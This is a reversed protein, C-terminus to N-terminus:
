PFPVRLPPFSLGIHIDLQGEHFEYAIISSTGLTVNSSSVGKWFNCLYKDLEGMKEPGRARKFSTEKMGKDVWYSPFGDLLTPDQDNCCVCVFKGKWDKYSQQFISLISRGAVGNLNVWLHDGPNKGEFLYLFVDV